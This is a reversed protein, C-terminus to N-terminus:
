FLSRGVISNTIPSHTAITGPDFLLPITGGSDLTGSASGTESSVRESGCFPPGVGCPAWRGFLDSGFPELVENQIGHSRKEM